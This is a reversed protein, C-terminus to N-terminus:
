LMTHVTHLTTHTTIAHQTPCPPHLTTHMQTSHPPLSTSNGGVRIDGKVYCFQIGKEFGGLYLGRKQARGSCTRRLNGKSQSGVPAREGRAGGLGEEKYHLLDRLDQTAPTLRGDEWTVAGLGSGNYLLTSNVSVM